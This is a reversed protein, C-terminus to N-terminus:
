FEKVEWKNKIREKELELSYLCEPCKWDNEYWTLCVNMKIRKQARRFGHGIIPHWMEVADKYGPNFCTKGICQEDRVMFNETKPKGVRKKRYTHYLMKM